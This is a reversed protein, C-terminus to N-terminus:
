KDVGSFYGKDNANFINESGSETVFQPAMNAIDVSLKSGITM